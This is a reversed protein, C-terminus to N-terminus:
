KLLVCEPGSNAYKPTLPEKEYTRFDRPNTYGHEIISHDMSCAIDLLTEPRLM